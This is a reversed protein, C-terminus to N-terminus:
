PLPLEGLVIDELMVMIKDTREGSAQDLIDLRTTVAGRLEKIEGGHLEGDFSGFEATQGIIGPGYFGTEAWIESNNALLKVEVTLGEIDRTGLNHLTVNFSRGWMLGVPGSGWDSTWKFEAIKVDYTQNETQNATQSLILLIAIAVVIISVLFIALAAKKM